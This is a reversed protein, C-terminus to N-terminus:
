NILLERSHFEAVTEELIRGSAAMEETQASIEETTGAITEISSGIDASAQKLFEYRQTSESIAIAGIVKDAEDVIPTAVAIYPIGLLSADMNVVTRRNERIAHYLASDKKYAEGQV